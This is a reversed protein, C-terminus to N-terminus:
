ERDLVQVGRTREPNHGEFSINVEQMNWAEALQGFEAEAGKHGGSYLTTKSIDTM